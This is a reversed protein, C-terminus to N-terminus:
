ILCETADIEKNFQLDITEQVDDVPDTETEDPNLVEPPSVQDVIVGNELEIKCIKCKCDFFYQSRLHDYRDKISSAKYYPGYNYTIDDGIKLDNLSRVVLTKGVFQKDLVIDCGHNLFSINSYIGTGIYGEPIKYKIDDSEARPDVIAVTNCLIQFMHLHIAGGIKCFDDENEDSVLGTTELCYTLFLALVAFYFRKSYHYKETHHILMLVSAYDGKYAKKTESRIPSQIRKLEKLCKEIGAELITNLALHVIPVKEIAGLWECEHRHVKEWSIQACSESCFRIRSCRPCPFSVDNLFKFCEYCYNKFYSKRLTGSFSKEVCLLKLKKINRKAKVHRGRGQVYCLKVSSSFCPLTKNKTRVKEKIEMKAPGDDKQVHINEAMAKIITKQMLDCKEPDRIKEKIFKEAKVKMYKAKATKGLKKYCRIKRGFLKHIYEPDYNLAIAKNVDIIAENFRNLQYLAASRNGYAISLQHNDGSENPNPALVVADSYMELAQLFDGSNYYENGKEIAAAAESESKGHKVQNHKLYISMIKAGERLYQDQFVCRFMDENSKLKAFKFIMENHQQKKYTELIATSLLSSFAYINSWEESEITSGGDTSSALYGTEYRTTMATIKDLIDDM